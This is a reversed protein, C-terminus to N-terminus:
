AGSPAGGHGNVACGKGLSNVSALLRYIAQLSAHEQSTLTKLSVQLREGDFMIWRAAFLNIFLLHVWLSAATPMRSFLHVIGELKPVFQVALRGGVNAFPLNHAGALGAGALGTSGDALM